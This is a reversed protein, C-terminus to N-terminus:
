DNFVFGRYVASINIVSQSLLDRCARRCKDEVHGTVYRVKWGTRACTIRDAKNANHAEYVYKDSYKEPLSLGVLNAAESTTKERCRYTNVLEKPSSSAKQLEQLITRLVSVSM